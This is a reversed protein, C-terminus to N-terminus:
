CGEDGVQTLIRRRRLRERTNHQRLGPGGSASLTTPTCLEAHYGEAGRATHQAKSTAGTAVGIPRTRKGSVRVHNVDQITVLIPGGVRRQNAAWRCSGAWGQGQPLVMGSVARQRSCLGRGGQMSAPELSLVTRQRKSSQGEGEKRM